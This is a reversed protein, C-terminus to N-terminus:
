HGQGDRDKQNGMAVAKALDQETRVAMRTPPTGIHSCDDTSRLPTSTTTAVGPRSSSWASCPLVRSLCADSTTSSSASRISSRPNSLSIRLISPISLGGRSLHSVCSPLCTPLCVPLCVFDLGIRRESARGRVPLRQEEAGRHGLFDLREGLFDEVLGHLNADSLYYAVFFLLFFFLPPSLSLFFFFFRLAAWGVSAWRRRASHECLDGVGGGGDRLRQHLRGLGALEVQQQLDYHLLARLGCRRARAKWQGDDEDLALCLADAPMPSNGVKKRRKGKGGGGPQAVRTGRKRGRLHSSIVAVMLSSSVPTAAAARWPSRECDSRSHASRPKLCCVVGSSMAVSTAALPSSTCPTACTM